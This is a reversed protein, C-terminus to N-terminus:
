RRSIKTKKDVHLKVEVPYDGEWVTSVPLGKTGIMLSYGIMPNSLGHRSAEDRKVNVDVSQLPEGYDTHVFETGKQQGYM